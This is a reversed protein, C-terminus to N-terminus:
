VPPYYPLPVPSTSGAHGLTYMPPVGIFMLLNFDEATSVYSDIYGIGQSLTLQHLGPQSNEISTLGFNATKPELTNINRASYFRKSSYYPFEVELASNQAISTIVSGNATRSKLTSKYAVDNDNTAIAPGAISVNSFPKYEYGNQIYQSDDNTDVVRTCAMTIAQAKTANLVTADPSRNATWLFKRRLGGRYGVYAPTFYNLWTNQSYSYNVPVTSGDDAQSPGHPNYGRYYPFDPEVIHLEGYNFNDASNTTPAYSTHLMYRKLLQRISTIEEGMFVHMTPDTIPQYSGVTYDITTAIPESEQVAAVEEAQPNLAPPEYDIPLLTVGEIQKIDPEGFRFDDGMKTFVNCVIDNNAADITSPVTLDNVVFVSLVGNAGHRFGTADPGTVVYPIPRDGITFMPMPSGDVILFPSDVQLFSNKAGWGIGMTLERTDAIDIIKTYMTNYDSGNDGGYGTYPDWVVRIRGRHFNSTVFQLRYIMSGGWWKFPLAAFASPTLHYESGSYAGTAQYMMPSVYTSFLRQGPATGIAWPFSTYYSERTVISKITMEDASGLGAVRSDVTTEQKCDLSLKTCSDPMNVNALNGMINPRFPACDTLIPPRSFGFLSAMKGVAGAALSTALAFPGIIPADALKGAVRAVIAAPKSIPSEGYEDSQPNLTSPEASTPISLQIDEAWAFVSISIGTTVGNAQKLATLQEITILGMEAWQSEVISLANDPLLFPLCLSGGQCETPNLYIHPRQSAGIIDIPSQLFPVPVGDAMHLPNYSAIARGYYFPNGNIVFKVCLKARLLNFNSIRHINRTNEFFLSWPNFSDGLYSGPEWLLEKILIPRSLFDGLPADEMDAITRTPDIESMVAYDFAPNLDTFAVNQSETEPSPTSIGINFTAVSESQPSLEPTDPQDGIRYGHGQVSTGSRAPLM